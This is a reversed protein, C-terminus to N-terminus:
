SGGGAAREEDTAQNLATLWGCGREAMITFVRRWFPAVGDARAAWAEREERSMESLRRTKGAELRM